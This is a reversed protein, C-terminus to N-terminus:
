ATIWIPNGAAWQSDETPPRQNISRRRRRARVSRNSHVRNMVNIAVRAIQLKLTQAISSMVRFAGRLRGVAGILMVLAVTDAWTAVDVTALWAFGEPGAPGMILLGDTKALVVLGAVLAALFLLALIRGFTMKAILRAPADILIQKFFIGGPSDLNRLAVAIVVFGLLILM